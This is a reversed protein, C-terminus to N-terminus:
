FVNNLLGNINPVSDSVLLLDFVFGEELKGRVTHHKETKKFLLM